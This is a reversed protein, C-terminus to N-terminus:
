RIYHYLSNWLFREKLNFTIVLTWPNLHFCGVCSAGVDQMIIALNLAAKPHRLTLHVYKKHPVLLSSYGIVQQDDTWKYITHNVMPSSEFHRNLIATSRCTYVHGDCSIRLIFRSLLLNTVVANLHKLPAAVYTFQWLVIAINLHQLIESYENIQSKRPMKLYNCIYSCPNFWM